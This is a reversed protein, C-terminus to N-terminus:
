LPPALTATSRPRTSTVLRWDPSRMLTSAPWIAKTSEGLPTVIVPLPATCGILTPGTRLRQHRRYGAVADGGADSRAADRGTDAAHRCADARAAHRGADAAADRRADAAAARRGADTAAAANRGTGAATADRGADAAAAADRGTDTAAANRGADAAEAYAFPLTKASSRRDDPASPFDQGSPHNGQPQDDQQGEPCRSIAPQAREVVTQGVPAHAFQRARRGAVDNEDVDVRAAHGPEAAPWPRAANVGVDDVPQDREIGGFDGEVDVEARRRRRRLIRGEFGRERPGAIGDDEDGEVLARRCADVGGGQVVVPRKGAEGVMGPQGADVDDGVGIAPDAPEVVGARRGIQRDRRQRGHQGATGRLGVPCEADVEADAGVAISRMGTMSRSSPRTAASRTAPLFIMTPASAISSRSMKGTGTWPKTEPESTCASPASLMMCPLASLLVPM